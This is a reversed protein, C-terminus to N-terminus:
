RKRTAISLPLVALMGLLCAFGAIGLAETVSRLLPRALTLVSTDVFTRTGTELALAIVTMWVLGPVANRLDPPSPAASSLLGALLLLLPAHIYGRDALLRYVESFVSWAASQTWLSIDSSLPARFPAAATAFRAGFLWATASVALVTASVIPGTAILASVLPGRADHKVFGSHWRIQVQRIRTLTVFCALMHGGEHLAVGLWLLVRLVKLREAAATLRLRNANACVTVLVILALPPALSALLALAAEAATHLAVQM